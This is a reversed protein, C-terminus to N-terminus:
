KKLPKIEPKQFFAEDSLIETKNAPLDAVAEEYERERRLMEDAFADREAKSGLLHPSVHVIPINIPQPSKM